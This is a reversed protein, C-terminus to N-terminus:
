FLLAALHFEGYGLICLFRFKAFISRVVKLRNPNFFGTMSCAFEDLIEVGILTPRTGSGLHYLDYLTGVVSMGYPICIHFGQNM